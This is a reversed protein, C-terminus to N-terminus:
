EGPPAPDAKAPPGSGRRLDAICEVHKTQPFMDLPVVRAVEYVGDECLINLDRALTAPHCSVYIVQRAGSERLAQLAAPYCGRRPPDLIVATKEAPFRELVEGLAEETKGQVFEGNVVGRDAANKRAAEIAQRDYEVGVFGDLVDSLELSFFGVGCFADVLHRVGSDQLREKVTNVLGPLLHFNNQFFSDPPVVWGEPNMRLAVKLGGKPPPNDRVEQIKASIEPEAIRCEAIDIVQRSDHKMFGIDLKRAPRNWGSRVMIRNRYGYHKPSGIVPDVLGPDLNGIREFLDRIQKHKIDLQREYAAHQYQCGGCEGFYPCEPEVRDPSAKVVRALRGRAFRKKVETLEIEVEEGSLVFPVFVVFGDIRAVGEGGFAIDDITAAVFDGARFPPPTDPKESM